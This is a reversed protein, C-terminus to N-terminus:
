RFPVLGQCFCLLVFGVLRACAVRSLRRLRGPWFTPCAGRSYPAAGWFRRQQPESVFVHYVELYTRTTKHLTPVSTRLCPRAGGLIGGGKIQPGVRLKAPLAAAGAHQGTQAKPRCPLECAVGCGEWHRRTNTWNPDAPSKALLAAAGRTGGKNQNQTLLSNAPM